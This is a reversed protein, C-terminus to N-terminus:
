FIDERRLWGSTRLNRILEDRIRRLDSEPIEVRKQPDSSHFVGLERDKEEPPRFRQSAIWHDIGLVALLRLPSGLYRYKRIDEQEEIYYRLIIWVRVSVVNLWDKAFEREILNHNILTGFDSIAILVERCDGRLDNIGFLPEFRKPDECFANQLRTRAADADRMEKILFPLIALQRTRRNERLQLGVVWVLIVAAFATLFTAILVWNIDM